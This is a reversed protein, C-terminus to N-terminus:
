LAHIRIRRYWTACKIDHADVFPYDFLLSCRKFLSWSIIWQEKIRKEIINHTTKYNSDPNNSVISPSMHRGDDHKVHSIVCVAIRSKCLFKSSTRMCHWASSSIHMIHHTSLIVNSYLLYWCTFQQVCRTRCHSWSVVGTFSAILFGSVDHRACPIMRMIHHMPPWLLTECNVDQKM